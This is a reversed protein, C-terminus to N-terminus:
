EGKTGVAMSNECEFIVGPITSARKTARAIANLAKIDPVCYDRPVLNPDVIKASWKQTVRAKALEPVVTDAVIPAAELNGLQSKLETARGLDGSDEAKEIRKTIRQATRETLKQSEAAKHLLEKQQAREQAIQFTSITGKGIREAEDLPNLFKNRLALLDKKATDLSKRAPEFEEFIANRLIKFGRVRETAAVADDPTVLQLNQAWRVSADTSEEFKSLQKQTVGAPLASM